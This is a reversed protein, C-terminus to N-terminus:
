ADDGECGGDVRANSVHLCHFVVEFLAIPVSTVVGWLGCGDYPASRSGGGLGGQARLGGISVMGM